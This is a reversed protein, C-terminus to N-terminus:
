GIQHRRSFWMWRFHIWRLEIVRINPMMAITAPSIRLTVHYTWLARSRAKFLPSTKTRSCGASVDFDGVGLRAGAFWRGGWSTAAALPVSDDALWGCVCADMAMGADSEMGRLGGLRVM